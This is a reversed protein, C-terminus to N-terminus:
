WPFNKLAVGPALRLWYKVKKSMPCDLCFDLAAPFSTQTGTDEHCKEKRSFSLMVSGHTVSCLLAPSTGSLVAQATQPDWFKKKKKM